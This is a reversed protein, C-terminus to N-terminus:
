EIVLENVVGRVGPTLRIMGEALRSDRPSTVSGSLLVLGNDLQIRIREKSRLTTSDAIIRRLESFLVNQDHAVLPVDESLTTAYAPARVTGATSFGFNGTNTGTVTGSLNAAGTLGTNLGANLGGGTTLGTAGTGLVGTTTGTASYTPQGFTSARITTAGGPTAVSLGLALPNGYTTRFPNANSPISTASAGTTAGGAQTGLTAISTNTQLMQGQVASQNPSVRQVNSGTGGGTAGGGTQGGAAGGGTTQAGIPTALILILYFAHRSNM